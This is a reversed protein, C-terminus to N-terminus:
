RKRESPNIPWSCKDCRPDDLDYIEVDINCYDCHGHHPAALRDERVSSGIGEDDVLAELRPMPWSRILIFTSTAAALLWSVLISGVFVQWVLAFIATLFPFSVLLLTRQTQDNRDNTM